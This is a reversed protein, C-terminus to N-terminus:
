DHGVVVTDLRDLLLNLGELGLDLRVAVLLGVGSELLDGLALRGEGAARPRTNAARELPVEGLDVSHVPGTVLDVEDRGRLVALEENPVRQRCVLRVGDGKARRPDHGAGVGGRVVKNSATTKVVNAGDVVELALLERNADAALEVSVSAVKRAAAENVVLLDDGRRTIGSAHEPVDFSANLYM